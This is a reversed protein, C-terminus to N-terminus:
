SIVNMRKGTKRATKGQRNDIDRGAHEMAPGEKLIKSSSDSVLRADVLRLVRDSRSAVEPSHTVM